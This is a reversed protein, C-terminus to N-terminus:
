VIYGDTSSRRGDTRRSYDYSGQRNSYGDDRENDDYDLQPRRDKGGQYVRDYDDEVYPRENRVHGEDDLVVVEGLTKYPCGTSLLEQMANCSESPIWSARPCHIFMQAHVCDGFVDEAVECQEMEEDTRVVRGQLQTVRPKCTRLAELVVQIWSADVGRTQLRPRFIRVREIRDTMTMNIKYLGCKAACSGRQYQGGDVEAHVFMCRRVAYRNIWVPKTCCENPSPFDNHRLCNEKGRLLEDSNAAAPLTILSAVFLVVVPANRM